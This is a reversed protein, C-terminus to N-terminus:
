RRHKIREVFTACAAGLVILLVIAGGHAVLVHTPETVWCFLRVGADEMLGVGLGCLAGTMAPRTPLARAVLWAPLALAPVSFAVAMGVCEWAYRVEVGAPMVTPLLAHTVHMVLVFGILSACWLAVLGRTSIERGPVAERFGAALIVLGAVAELASLGWSALPTLQNLNSRWGWYLPSGILLTAALPVLALARRAPNALPRVSRLDRKIAALLEAPVQSENM